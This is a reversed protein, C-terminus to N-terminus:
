RSSTIGPPVDPSTLGVEDPLSAPAKVGPLNPFAPLWDEHDTIGNLNMNKKYPRVATRGIVSEIRAALIGHQPHLL